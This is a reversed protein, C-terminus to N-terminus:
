CGDNKDDNVLLIAFHDGRSFGALLQQMNRLPIIRGDWRWQNDADMTKRFPWRMLHFEAVPILQRILFVKDHAKWL